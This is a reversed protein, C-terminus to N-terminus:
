EKPLHLTYDGQALAQALAQETPLRHSCAIGYRGPFHATHADSGAILPLDNDQAHKTARLNEVPSNGANYAEIGDLLHAPLPKWPEAIYDRVRFPHAQYVLGGAEHVLHLLRGLREETSGGERLEPHAYLFAPTIGYLLVEKGGGVGEELGFLVDFDLQDGVAKAELYQVEYPRVFDEWRQHRRIGTNGYFFHNTLVMGAFGAAKLERVTDTPSASACASCRATHQHMEYLYPGSQTPEQTMPSRKPHIPMTNMESEVM